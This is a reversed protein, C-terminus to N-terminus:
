QAGGGGGGGGVRQARDFEAIANLYSILARLETLRATTLNNQAQVVNYNTSMGVDFRTQEAIANREQAESNKQAALYQKYTNEVALGANTVAASVQLEQAKLTAQSQDYQLLARAYNAKEARLGLPYAFQFNMTWTPIDLARIQGLADVYGGPTIGVIEGAQIQRIPGGLGQLQYSTNFTLDPKTEDRTVELNFQSIEINKRAQVLDTRQELATRVASPIDVSQVTLVPTEAPHVTSKYLEDEPGNALLRKLNLEATQWAVRAALLAQEASAVQAESQVTDIPAMTGIEVKIRNDQYLRNALDLARQQIEIQEIAQKLNWYATRVSAKTNEIAATLQVDAVQRQVALTKLQNRTNDTRFGALLPLSFNASLQTNFAPSRPTQLSNTAQRSNNFSVSYNAGHWPLVQNLNSNFQQNITNVSRLNPDLISSNNPRSQNNYGYTGGIRPTFAARAAQLQYDVGQPTLRAAKLDLNKELAIEQAQELTLELLNTGEVVPPRAQGVVYRDIPQAAAGGQPEPLAPAGQAPPQAGGPAPPQEQAAARGAAGVILLGLAWVKATRSVHVM